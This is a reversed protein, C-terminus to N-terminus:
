ILILNSNYIGVISISKHFRFITTWYFTDAASVTEAKPDNSGRYNKGLGGIAKAM